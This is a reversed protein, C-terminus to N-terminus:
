RRENFFENISIPTKNKPPPFSQIATIKGGYKTIKVYVMGGRVWQIEKPIKIKAKVEECFRILKGYEKNTEILLLTSSPRMIPDIKILGLKIFLRSIKNRKRKM